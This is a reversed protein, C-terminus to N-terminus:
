CYGLTQHEFVSYVNFGCETRIHYHLVFSLLYYLLRMHLFLARHAYVFLECVAAHHSTILRTRGTPRSFSLSLRPLSPSCRSVPPIRGPKIVPMIVCVQAAWAHTPLLRRVSRYSCARARVCVCALIVLWFEHLSFFRLPLRVSALSELLWKLCIRCAALFGPPPFGPNFVCQTPNKKKM